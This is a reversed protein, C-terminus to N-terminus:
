DLRIGKAELEGFVDTYLNHFPHDAHDRGTAFFALDLRDQVPQQVRPHLTESLTM